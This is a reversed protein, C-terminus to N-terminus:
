NMQMASSDLSTFVKPANEYVGYRFVKDMAWAPMSLAILAWLAWRIWRQASTPKLM